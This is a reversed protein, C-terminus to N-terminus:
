FGGRQVELATNVCTHTVMDIKKKESVADQSANQNTQFESHVGPEDQVGLPGKVLRQKWTGGLGTM